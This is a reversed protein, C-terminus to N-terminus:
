SYQSEWGPGAHGAATLCGGAKADWVAERLDGLLGDLKGEWVKNFRQYGGDM